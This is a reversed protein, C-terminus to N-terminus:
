VAGSKVASLMDATANVDAAAIDPVAAERERAVRKAFTPNRVEDVRSKIVM